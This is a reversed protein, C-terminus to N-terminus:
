CSKLFEKLAGTLEVKNEIHSMHGNPVIVVESNTEKAEQLSTEFNLVPDKKGIIFLKKFNNEKLVTTRNKRLKMGEQCAIYGQVPTKLAERIALEIEDKFIVKSQDSFLNAFSIRVMNTFNNQIMQNARTRRKKLEKDDALSTSNLLCLGKIKQPNKEALALAVYGGMSHGVLVFRSLRLHNLVTEVAEAMLETSHVYGLCETNGHGLLDITIIRYKKIFASSVDKWMNRNELFGHLLVVAIGKGEDSFAIKINKFVVSNLM